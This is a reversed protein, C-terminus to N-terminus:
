TKVPTHRNLKLPPYGMGIWGWGQGPPPNGIWGQIPPTGRDLRPHPSVGIWGQIPPPAGIWGQVPPYGSGAKSLPTGQDLRPHPPVGIWGRLPPVRIWGQVPPTGWDLRPCPPPVGDGPLTGWGMDPPYGPYGGRFLLCKSRSRPPRHAEQTWAPPSERKSKITEWCLAFSHVRQSLNHWWYYDSM